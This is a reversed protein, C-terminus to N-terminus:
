TIDQHFSPFHAYRGTTMPSHCVFTPRIAGVGSLANQSALSATSSKTRFAVGPKTEDTGFWAM